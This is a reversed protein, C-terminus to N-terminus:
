DQGEKQHFRHESELCQQQPISDMAQVVVIGDQVLHTQVLSVGLVRVLGKIGAWM